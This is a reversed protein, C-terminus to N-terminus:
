QYWEPVYMPVGRVLECVEYVFAAIHPILDDYEMVMLWWGMPSQARGRLAPYAVWVALLLVSRREVIEPHTCSMMMHIEDEVDDGCMRCLRWARPIVETVGAPKPFWKAAEVALFHSGTVLRTLAIRHAPIRIRLYSRFVGPASSWKGKVRERRGITMPLRQAGMQETLWMDSAERVAGMLYDVGAVTTLWQLWDGTDKVRLRRLVHAIDGLWNAAGQQWLAIFTNLCRVVLRSDPLALLKRLFRLHRLARSFRLPIVGTESYLIVIRSHDHVHLIRRLFYVEVAELLALSATRVDVAVEAAYTLHSAIRAKYITLAQTPPLDGFHKQLRLSVNATRRATTAKGEYTKQFLGGSRSHFPVGLYRHSDTCEIAKGQLYLTPLVDPVAGFVM